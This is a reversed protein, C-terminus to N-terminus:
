LEVKDIVEVWHNASLQNNAFLGILKFVEDSFGGINLIDESDAAQTSAYPQIDICILKAKPNRKKIEAWQRMTESAVYPKNRLWSENDSVFIVV